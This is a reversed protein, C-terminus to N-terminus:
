IIKSKLIQIKVTLISYELYIIIDEFVSIFETLITHLFIHYFDHCKM